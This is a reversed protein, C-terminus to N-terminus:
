VAYRSKRSMCLPMKSRDWEIGIARDDTNHACTIVESAAMAKDTMTTM